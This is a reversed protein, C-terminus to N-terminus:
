GVKEYKRFKVFRFVQTKHTDGNPDTSIQVARESCASLVTVGKATLAATVAYVLTFEGQCLVADPRCSIIKEACEVALKQIFSEDADAPVAPFAFDTVAGYESAQAM